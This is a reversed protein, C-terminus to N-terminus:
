LVVLSFIGVYGLCRCFLMFEHELCKSNKVQLQCATPLTLCLFVGGWAGLYHGHDKKREFCKADYM